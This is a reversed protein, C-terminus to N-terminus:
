QDQFVMNALRDFLWDPLLWKFFAILRAYRGVLYRTKPRHSTLAHEIADVASNVPDVMQYLRQEDARAKQVAREWSPYYLRLQKPPVRDPLAEFARRSKEWLPTQLGAPEVISVHVGWPALELRLADSAAEVAYKAACSSGISKFVCRGNISSMNVIRGRGQRLLPLFAQTVALTGFYNVEMEHRALELPLIELPGHYEVTANNVLGVLAQGERTLAARVQEAARAIQNGDTVDLLVPTQKGPGDPQFRALDRVGSFVWFGRQALRQVTAAGVGSSAGTILVAGKADM